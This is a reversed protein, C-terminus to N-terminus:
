RADDAEKLGAIVGLEYADNLADAVWSWNRQLTQDEPEGGDNGIFQVPAGDEFRWVGCTYEGYELAEAWDETYLPLDADLEAADAYSLVAYTTM